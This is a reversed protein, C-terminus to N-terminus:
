VGEKECDVLIFHKVRKLAAMQGGCQIAHCLAAQNDEIKERGRLQRQGIRAIEKDIWSLLQTTEM